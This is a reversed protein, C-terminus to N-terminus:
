VHINIFHVTNKGLPDKSVKLDRAMLQHQLQAKDPPKAQWKPKSNPGDNLGIETAWTAFAPRPFSTMGVFDAWTQM